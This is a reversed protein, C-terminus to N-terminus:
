KFLRGAQAPTLTGGLAAIARALAPDRRAALDAATPLVIEDPTVGTHELLGGDAMRLDGVTITTAYFAIADMGLTHPFLRSTMVAGATRDGIVTGRKELQFVRATVESASASASDVLVVIPGSFADKRGKVEVAKDGRRTAEVGVRINRDFVRSALERMADVDGGPNGRLDIIMSKAARAQKIVLDMQKPDLFAGCRWVFTDGVTVWYDSPAGETNMIERFLDELTQGVPRQEVKSEVDVAAEVGNPKRVLIRQMSQPRIFDYLYRIQWLNQRTPQFRNWALVRDGPALGKKEADSGAEVSFVYPDDGVIRAHWGYAVRARRDPPLFTTHSDNLRMLVEAIIGVSENVTAAAKLRQEAEAFVADVDMGRFTKDYYNDKLDAKVTRLMQVSFGSDINTISKAPPAQQQAAAPALWLFVLVPLARAFVRM